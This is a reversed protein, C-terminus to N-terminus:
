PKRGPPPGAQFMGPALKQCAKQAAQFVPSAPDLGQGPQMKMLIGGGGSASQPDPFKPVGHSRMCAAFKLMAKLDAAQQKTSVKGGNPALKQCAQQAKRFLPSSPDVGSTRGGAGRRFTLRLHGESDPDPFNPVGHKRMCRSYAAPNATQSAPQSTTTADTTQAAQAVSPSASAGCGAAALAGGALVVLAAAGKLYRLDM